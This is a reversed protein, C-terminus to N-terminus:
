ILGQLDPFPDFVFAVLKHFVCLNHVCFHANGSDCMCLCVPCNSVVVDLSEMDEREQDEECKRSSVDFSTNLCSLM